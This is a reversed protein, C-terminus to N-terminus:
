THRPSETGVSKLQSLGQFKRRWFRSPLATASIGAGSKVSYSSASCQGPASQSFLLLDAKRHTGRMCGACRESGVGASSLFRSCSPELAGHRRRRRPWHLKGLGAKDVASIKDTMLSSEVKLENGSAQESAKVPVRFVRTAPWDETSEILAGTAQLRQRHKRVESPRTALPLRAWSAAMGGLRWGGEPVICRFGALGHEGMM